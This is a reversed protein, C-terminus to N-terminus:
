SVHDIISVDGDKTFIEAIYMVDAELVESVLATEGTKLKTKDEEKIM